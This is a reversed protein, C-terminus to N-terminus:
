RGKGTAAVGPPVGPFRADVSMGAHLGGGTDTLAVKIGFVQQVRDGPTQVNRPTFEAERAVQEVKGAFTRGPFADARVEAADGPRLHGIWPQPVYVRVWLRHLPLLTAVERNPAVVDGPKVPLAEVVANTPSAVRLEALAADLERLRARAQAIREARAGALLLDLRSQAAAASRGLTRVRAEARDLEAATAAGDQSLRRFRRVESEALEAESRAAALEARAVALEEPRAGAELEALQAVAQERLAPLEPAELEAVLQGASVVDGERVALRAVRGGHRSAVRVVDTEVTGSAWGGGDGRRCGAVAAAAALLVAALLPSLAHRSRM